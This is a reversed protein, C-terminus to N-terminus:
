AHGWGWITGPIGAKPAGAPGLGSPQCPTARARALPGLVLLGFLFVRLGARFRLRLLVGCIAAIQPQPARARWFARFGVPVFCPGLLARALWLLLLVSLVVAWREAYCNQRYKRRKTSRPGLMAPMGLLAQCWFVHFHAKSIDRQCRRLFLAVHTAFSKPLFARHHLGLGASADWVRIIDAVRGLGANYAINQLALLVALGPQHHLPALCLCRMVLTPPVRTCGRSSFSAPLNGLPSM